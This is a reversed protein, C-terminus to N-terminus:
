LLAREKLIAVLERAKENTSGELFIGQGKQKPLTTGVIQELPKSPSQAVPGVEEIEQKNARLMNTLNPYRPQRTGSQVTLLAPLTFEVTEQVGGEGERQISVANKDPTKGLSVVSTAWPIDLIGAIMPGVAGAMEDESMVGCMILDYGKDKAVSAILSATEHSTLVRGDDVPIFIGHSAGMALARRLTAEAREPGVTVAEVTGQGLCECLCLAEEMAYEDLRNMVFSDRKTVVRGEPSLELDVEPDPVQKVCVLIKM